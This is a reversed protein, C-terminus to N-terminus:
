FFLGFIGDVKFRNCCKVEDPFILTEFLTHVDAKQFRFEAICEDDTMRDLDLREYDWYPLYLHTSRNLDYLMIFEEDNIDGMDYASLLAEYNERLNVLNLKENGKLISTLHSKQDNTSLIKIKNCVLFTATTFFLQPFLNCWM